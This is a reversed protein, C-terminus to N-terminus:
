KIAWFYVHKKKKEVETKLHIWIGRKANGGLSSWLATDGSGATFPGAHPDGIGTLTWGTRGHLARRRALWRLGSSLATGIM